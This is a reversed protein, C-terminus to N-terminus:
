FFRVNATIGARDLLNICLHAMKEETHRGFIRHFAILRAKIKISGISDDCYAWYATIAFYSQLSASSWADATYSIKGLAAQWIILLISLPLFFISVELEEKLVIYYNYWAEMISQTFKDRGCIDDDTLDERLYLLLSRFEPCEIM